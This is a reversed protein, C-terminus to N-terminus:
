PHENDYRRLLTDLITTSVLNNANGYRQVCSLPSHQSPTNNRQVGVSATRQLNGSM